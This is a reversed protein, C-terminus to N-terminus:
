VALRQSSLEVKSCNHRWDCPVDLGPAAVLRQDAQLYRVTEVGSSRNSSLGTSLYREGICRGKRLADARSAEDGAGHLWLRQCADCDQRLDITLGITGSVLYGVAEGQHTILDVNEGCPAVVHINAELLNRAAVPVLREYM